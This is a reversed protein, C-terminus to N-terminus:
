HVVDIGIWDCWFDADSFNHEYLDDDDISGYETEYYRLLRETEEILKIIKQNRKNSVNLEFRENSNQTVLDKEISADFTRNKFANYEEEFGKQNLFLFRAYESDPVGSDKILKRINRFNEEIKAWEKKSLDQEEKNSFDTDIVPKEGANKLQTQLKEVTSILEKKDLMLAQNEETLKQANNKLANLDEELIEVKKRLEITEEGFQYIPQSGLGKMEVSGLNFWQRPFSCNSVFEYSSLVTGAECYKGIRACRDIPTGQPDLEDHGDYKILFVKGFDLAIKVRTAAGTIETLNEEINKIRQILSIADDVKTMRDFVGMVEDGIYKVVKGNSNEIYERIINGFQKVRLIWKEPESSNDIKFKTSDVLDIFVVVCEVFGERIEKIATEKEKIIEAVKQQVQELNDLKPNIPKNVSPKFIRREM